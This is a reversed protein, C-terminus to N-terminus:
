ECDDIYDQLEEVDIKTKGVDTFEVSIEISKMLEVNILTLKNSKVGVELTVDIDSLYDESDELAEVTDDYDEIADEFFVVSAMLLDYLDPEFVHIAAGNKKETEYGANEKLWSKSNFKKVLKKLGKEAKKLDVYDELDEGNMEEFLEALSEMNLEKIEEYKEFIDDLESGIDMVTGSEYEPYYTFMEEEYIGVIVKEGDMKMEVLATITHKKLNMNVMATGTLKEGMYEVEFEATFNGGLITKEVAKTMSAAPGGSLSGIVLVVVLILAIAGLGILLPTRNKPEKAFSLVQNLKEKIAAGKPAAPAAPAATPATYSPAVPETPVSPNGCVNCFKAGPAISNGCVACRLSSQRVPPAYTPAAEAAAGCVRCFSSGAPIESGCLKCNM